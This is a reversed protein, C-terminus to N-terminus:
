CARLSIQLLGAMCHQQQAGTAGHNCQWPWSCRSHRPRGCHNSPHPPQPSPMVYISMRLNTCSSSQLRQHVIASSHTRRSRETPSLPPYLLVATARSYCHRVGRGKVSTGLRSIGCCVVSLMPRHQIWINVPTPVM